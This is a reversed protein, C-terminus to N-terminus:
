NFIVKESFKEAVWHPDDLKICESGFCDEEVKLWRTGEILLSQSSMFEHGKIWVAQVEGYKPESRLFVKGVNIKYKGAEEELIPKNQQAITNNAEKMEVLEPVEDQPTTANDKTTELLTEDQIKEIAESEVVTVNSDQLELTPVKLNIFEKHLQKNQTKLDRYFNKEDIKDNPDVIEPVLFFLLDNSSSGEDKHKFAEGVVPIDGLFPIKEKDSYSETHLRGGLAILQGSKAVVETTINKSIFAPVETDSGLQVKHEEAPDFASDEIDVKMHMFKDNNMFNTKLTLKLGYEKEELQITPIGSDNQTLGVPIYVEGGVRFTANQDETTILVTDDLIKAVGKTELFNLAGTVSYHDKATLATSKKGLYDLLTGSFTAGNTAIPNNVSVNFFENMFGLGTIGGLDEAKQNNIQVLYLKTRIMKRVKSTQTMDILKASDIGASTLFEYVRNKSKKSQFEGSITVAGNGLRNLEVNPEITQVMSLLPKLNQNVYVNFVEHSNDRYFILISTDGIGKGYLKLSENMLSVNLIKKDGISIEKIKKEVSLVKYTNEYMMIDQANLSLVLGILILIKKM